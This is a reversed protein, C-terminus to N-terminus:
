SVSGFWRDQKHSRVCSCRCFWTWPCTHFLLEEFHVHRFLDQCVAYCHMAHRKEKQQIPNRGIEGWLEDCDSSTQLAWTWSTRGSPRKAAQGSPGQGRCQIVQLRLERHTAPRIETHITRWFCWLFMQHVVQPGYQQYAARTISLDKVATCEALLSGGLCALSAPSASADGSAKEFMVTKVMDLPQGPAVWKSQARVESVLRTHIGPLNATGGVLLMNGLLKGRLNINSQLRLSSMVLEPLTDGALAATSRMDFLLEGCTFGKERIMQDMELSRTTTLSTPAVVGTKLRQLEVNFDQAVWAFREKASEAVAWSGASSANPEPSQAKLIEVMQSTLAAGGIRGHASCHPLPYGEDVPTVRTGEEGIDIVLATSLGAGLTALFTSSLICVSTQSGLCKEFLFECLEERASRLSSIPLSVILQRQQRESRGLIENWFAENILSERFSGPTRLLKFNEFCRERLDESKLVKFTHQGCDVVTM